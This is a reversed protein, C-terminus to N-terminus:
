AGALFEDFLWLVADHGHTVDNIDELRYLAADHPVGACLRACAAARLAVARDIDGTIEFGARLLAGGACFRAALPDHVQAPTGDALVAPQYRVWASENGILRRARAIVQHILPQAM